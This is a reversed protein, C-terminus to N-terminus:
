IMGAIAAGLSVVIAALLAFEIRRQLRPQMRPMHAAGIEPIEGAPLFPTLHNLQQHPSLSRQM